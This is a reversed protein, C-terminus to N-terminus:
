SRVLMVGGIVLAAGFLSLITVPEGLWLAGAALAVVPTLNSYMAMRSGGLRSVGRYWLLYALGISLFASYLLGGWSVADVASWDQRVLSPIGILIIGVAGTWLTLATARVTGYRDMLPRSGQTYLAWLAAAGILMLNGLLAETGEVRLAARSVLAVGMISALAGLWAKPGHRVGTWLELALMFVPMVALMLSGNGATTLDLGLIFTLQYLTNGLIGLAVVRLVDERAPRILRGQARLVVYVFASAIAYRLANFALPDITALARKAVAFNLGWIGVMLAVSAEAWVLSGARPAETPIAAETEAM